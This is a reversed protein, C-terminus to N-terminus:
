IRTAPFRRASPTLSPNKVIISSKFIMVTFSLGCVVNRCRLRVGVLDGLSSAFDSNTGSFTSGRGHYGFREDGIFCAMLLSLSALTEDRAVIEVPVSYFM